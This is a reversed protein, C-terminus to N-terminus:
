SLPFVKQQVLDKTEFVIEDGVKLWDGKTVVIGNVLIQARKFAKKVSTKTPLVRSPNELIYDFVRIPKKLNVVKFLTRKM